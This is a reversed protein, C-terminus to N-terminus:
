KKQTKRQLIEGPLVGTHICYAVVIKGNVVELDIGHPYRHADQFSNTEAPNVPPLIMPRGGANWIAECNISCVHYFPLNPSLDNCRESSLGCTIGILPQKM